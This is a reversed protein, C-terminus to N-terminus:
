EESGESSELNDQSNLSELKESQAIESVQQIVNEAYESDTYGEINGNLVAVTQNDSTKYLELIDTLADDGDFTYKISFIKTCDEISEPSTYGRTIGTVNNIFTSMNSYTIKEGNYIVENSIIEDYTENITKTHTIDYHYEQGDVSIDVDILNQMNPVVISNSLFDRYTVEYWILDDISMQYIISAGSAMIYCNNNSDAESALIHVGTDDSATIEAEIYPNDLGYEKIDDETVDVAIVTSSRMGYFSEGFGEFFDNDCIARYPTDMVFNCYNANNDIPKIYVDTDYFSGSLKVTQITEDTDFSSSLEKVFMQLKDVLFMNIMNEQVLYVTKKGDMKFYVGKNDPADNGIYMKVESNDSYVVSVTARPNDLGYESDREGSKDVVKLAAMYVCQEALSDTMTKSLTQNEYEQMTYIITSEGSSESAEDGSVAESYDFGLLNYEGSENSVTIDEAILSSKDFILIADSSSTEVVEENEPLNLVVIMAGVLVVVCAAMLALLKLNKKM